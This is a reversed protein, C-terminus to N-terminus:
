GIGNYHGLTNEFGVIIVKSKKHIGLHIFHHILFSALNDDEEVIHVIGGSFDVEDLRLATQLDIFM